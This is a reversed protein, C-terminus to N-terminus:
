RAAGCGAVSVRGNPLFRVVVNKFLGCRFEVIDRDFMIRKPAAKLTFCVKVPCCTRPHIVWAEVPGACFRFTEAFERVTLARVTPLVISPVMPPPTFGPPPLTPLPPPLTPVPEIGRNSGAAPPLVFGPQGSSRANEPAAPPFPSSRPVQAFLTACLLFTLPALRLM